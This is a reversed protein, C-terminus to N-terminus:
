GGQIAERRCSKKPMRSVGVTPRPATGQRPAGAPAWDADPASSWRDRRSRAAGTGALACPVRAGSDWARRAPFGAPYLGVETIVISTRVGHGMGASSGLNAARTALGVLGWDNSWGGGGVFFDGAERVGVPFRAAALVTGGLFVPVAGFGFQQAAPAKAQWSIASRRLGTTYFRRCYLPSEGFKSRCRFVIKRSEAAAVMPRACVTVKLSCMAGMM